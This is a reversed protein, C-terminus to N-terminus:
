TNKGKVAQTKATMGLFGNDLGLDYSIKPKTSTYNIFVFGCMSLTHIKNFKFMCVCTIGNLVTLTSFMNMIKLVQIREHIHDKNIIKTYSLFVVHSNYEYCTKLYM